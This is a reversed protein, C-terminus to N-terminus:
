KKWFEDAQAKKWSAKSLITPTGDVGDVGIKRNDDQFKLLWSRPTQSNACWKGYLSVGWAQCFDTLLNSGFGSSAVPMNCVSNMNIYNKDDLANSLM